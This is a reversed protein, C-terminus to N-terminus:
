HIIAVLSEGVIPLGSPEMGQTGKMAIGFRKMRAHQEPLQNFEWFSKNTNFAKSFGSHEAEGSFAFKPDTMVEFFYASAKLSDDSRITHSPM